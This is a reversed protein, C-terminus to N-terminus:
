KQARKLEQLTKDSNIFDSIIEFQLIDINKDFYKAWKDDLFLQTIQKTRKQAESFTFLRNTTKNNKPQIKVKKNDFDVEIFFIKGSLNIPYFDTWNAFGIVIQQNKYNENSILKWRCNAVRGWHNSKRYVGEDTYFYMSESKSKYNTDEPFEFNDIQTFECFTHRFFNNRNYTKLFLIKVFTILFTMALFSAIEYNLLFIAETM